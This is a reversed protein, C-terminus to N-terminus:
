VHARGIETVDGLLVGMSVSASALVQHEIDMVNTLSVTITQVDTVGELNVIMDYGDFTPPNTVSVSGTGATVSASGALVPNNFSFVLTHSTAM